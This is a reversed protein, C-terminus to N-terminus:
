LLRVKFTNKGVRYVGRPLESGIRKESILLNNIEKPLFCCTQPSYVKYGIGKQFLDKDLHYGDIYNSDFWAKFRSFYLWEECVSCNRYTPSKSIYKEDYCRHLMNLWAVYSNINKGNVWVLGDYDMIGVGFFLGHKKHSIGKLEKM